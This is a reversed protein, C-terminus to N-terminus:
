EDDDDQVAKDIETLLALCHTLKKVAKSSNLTIERTIAHYMESDPSDQIQCDPHEDVWAKVCKYCKSIMHDLFRRCEEKNEDKFWVDDKRVYITERKVDSCQMPRDKKQKANMAKTIIKTIAQAYGVETIDSLDEMNVVISQIFDSLNMANKCEENLFVNLNFRKNNTTTTTNHSSTTDHSDNVTQQNNSMVNSHEIHSESRQQRNGVVTTIVNTMTNMMVEQHKMFVSMMEMLMAPKIENSVAIAEVARQESTQNTKTENHKDSM